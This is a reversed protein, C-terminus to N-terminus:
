EKDAEYMYELADGLGEEDILENFRRSGEVLHALTAVGSSDIANPLFGRDEMVGNLQRKTLRTVTSPVKKIQDVENWVEDMLDEHPVTRNVWGFREAEEASVVKGTLLLERVYKDSGMVYPYTLTVPLGGMRVAPYGFEARESAITIDCIGALDSGGALAPGNVAAIVPIHLDYVTFIHRHVSERPDWLRETMDPFDPEIGAESLDYGSSFVKGDSTIVAARVSEDKEATELADVLESVFPDSLANRKEPRDLRIIAAGDETAYQIMDYESM